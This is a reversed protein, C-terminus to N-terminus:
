VALDIDSDKNMDEYNLLSGFLIVKTVGYKYQLFKACKRAIILGQKQKEKM